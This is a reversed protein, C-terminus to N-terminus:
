TPTALSNVFVCRKKLKTAYKYESTTHDGLAGSPKRIFVVEDAMRIKQQHLEMLLRKTETDDNYNTDELGLYINIALVVNGDLAFKKQYFEWDAKQKSSGCLTIVPYKEKMETGKKVLFIVANYTLNKLKPTLNLFLGLILM